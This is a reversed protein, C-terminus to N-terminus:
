AAAACRLFFKQLAPYSDFVIDPGDAGNTVKVGSHRKQLVTAELHRRAGGIDAVPDDGIFWINGDPRSLKESALLYPAESPKDAGAEESTVVYDFYDALGLYILKRFQIQATLDTIVATAIDERRLTELFEKVGEFLIAHSLFSRWYTQELDLTILMQTRLGLLEVTRQFYLLRSHSSAVPGLREKIEQRAQRFAEDFTAGDIGLLSRAKERTLKMAHEHAPPYPYLTNDTDFLVATPRGHLRDPNRIDLSM